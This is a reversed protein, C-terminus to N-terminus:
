NEYVQEWRYKKGFNSYKKGADSFFLANKNHFRFFKSFVVNKTIMVRMFYMAIANAKSKKPQINLFGSAYLMLMSGGIFVGSPLCIFWSPRSATDDRIAFIGSGGVSDASGGLGTSTLTSLGFSGM